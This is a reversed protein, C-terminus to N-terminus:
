PAERVPDNPRTTPDRTPYRATSSLQYPLPIYFKVKKLRCIRIQRKNVLSSLLQTIRPALALTHKRWKRLLKVGVIDCNQLSPAQRSSLYLTQRRQAPKVTVDATASTRATRSWM